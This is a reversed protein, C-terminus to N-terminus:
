KSQTLNTATVSIATDHNTLHKVLFGIDLRTQFSTVIAIGKTMAVISKTTCPAKYSLPLYESSFLLTSTIHIM